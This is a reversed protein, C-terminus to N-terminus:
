TLITVIDFTNAYRSSQGQIEDSNRYLCSVGGPLSDISCQDRPVVKDDGLTFEDHDADLSKIDLM